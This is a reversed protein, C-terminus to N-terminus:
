LCEWACSRKRVQPTHLLFRRNACSKPHQHAWIAAQAVQTGFLAGGGPGGRGSSGTSNAEGGGGGGAQTSGDASDAAGNGSDGGDGGGDPPAAAMASASGTWAGQLKSFDCSYPDAPKWSYIHHTHQQQQQEDYVVEQRAADEQEQHPVGEQPVGQPAQQQGQQQQWVEVHQQALQRACGTDRRTVSAAAAATAETSLVWPSLAQV